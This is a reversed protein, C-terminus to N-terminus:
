ALSSNLSYSTCDIMRTPEQPASASFTPIRSM